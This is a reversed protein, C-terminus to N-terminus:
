ANNYGVVPYEMSLEDFLEDSYNLLNGCRLCYWGEPVAPERIAVLHPEKLWINEHDDCL